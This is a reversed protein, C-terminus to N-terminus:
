INKIIEIGKKFAKINLDMYREKEGALLKEFAKMISDNSIIDGGQIAYIAGLMIIASAISDGASKIEHAIDIYYARVDGRLVKRPVLSSNILIVGGPRVYSEYKDLSPLNMAILFDANASIVPSTISDNSIIVHCNATGGRMEPGYSPLWTVEYGDFMGAYTIMLGLSMIGQGGFGSCIFKFCKNEM